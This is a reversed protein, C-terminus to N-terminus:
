LMGSARLVTEQVLLEQDLSVTLAREGRMAAALEVFDAEYRRYTLPVTQRGKQYPGVAALFDFKLEPPEIPQLIASGRTGLVEFARAPTSAGQLSTNTLVAMASDFELVAVNNDKFDDNFRGHRRLFPTVSKPKGLFRVTADVLHSGLEFMSGGAFEAWEGRRVAPLSNVISARILFVDGLWGQRMAELMANLGPHYRWMYGCQLLRKKEKALAILTRMDELNTAAPKEVHVHKGAKLVLMAQRAHDRVASEVAVVQSRELLETQTVLKAGLKECLTRAAEDPECVGVLEYDPSAMIVKLKELGHSHTVGMFGIPLRTKEATASKAIGVMSVTALTAATLGLFSRRSTSTHTKM